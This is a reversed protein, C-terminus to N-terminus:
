NLVCLYERAMVECGVTSSKNYNTTWFKNEYMQISVVKKKMRFCGSYVGSADTMSTKDAPLNVNSVTCSCHEMWYGEIFIYVIGKM